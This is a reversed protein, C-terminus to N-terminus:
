RQSWREPMAGSRRLWEDLSLVLEALHEADLSLDRRPFSDYDDGDVIRHATAVMERVCANPDM